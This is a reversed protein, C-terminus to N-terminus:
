SGDRQLCQVARQLSPAVIQQAHDGAQLGIVGPQDSVITLIDFLYGGPVTVNPDHKLIVGQERVHAHEVVDDLCWAPHQALVLGDAVPMIPPSDGLVRDFREGRAGDRGELTATSGREGAELGSVKTELHVAELRAGMTVVSELLGEREIIDLNALAAACAAAHGSYTYGHRLIFDPDAELADRASRGVIVGGLPQYGSTVGKAFTTLDPTVGYHEAAFWSGMRGFGTIVEDFILLIGHKDCLERLRKLYGKPPPLVGTSGAMPEVIVAAITSADHLAVMRELEDALHMGWEPEGKTYAQEARNYTHPLHDAGLLLPGGGALLEPTSHIPLGSIVSSIINWHKAAACCDGSPVCVAADNM